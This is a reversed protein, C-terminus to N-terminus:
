EALKADIKAQLEEADWGHYPRKGIVELYDARLKTLEDGDEAPKSGGKKGNEDHDLPDPNSPADMVQVAMSAELIQLYDGTFEGPEEKIPRTVEGFAPLRAFGATTELDYPSATLNKVTVM